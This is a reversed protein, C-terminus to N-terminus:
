RRCSTCRSGARMACRTTDLRVEVLRGDRAVYRKEAGLSSRRGELLDAFLDETRALDDPHTFERVGRGALEAPTAGLMAALAPNAEAIRGDLTVIAMGVGSSEMVRQFRDAAPLANDPANQLTV